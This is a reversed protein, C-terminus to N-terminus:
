RAIAQAWKTKQYEENLYPFREQNIYTTLGSYNNIRFGSYSLLFTPTNYKVVMCKEILMALEMRALAADTMRAFHQEFDFFLHYSYRDFVQIGAISPYAEEKANERVWAALEPLPSTRILSLTVSSFPLEQEQYNYVAETFAKLNAEPEFLLNISTSYVQFFGPSLIEAPSGLIYEAKDKLEYAVEIGAMFCAEFLIFEFQNDPIANAFDPLNMWVNNDVVISRPSNLTADPLWGSAHSFVILGYSEAPCEAVAEEIVRKFVEASASNESRGEYLVKSLNENKKRYIVELTAGEPLDQYIVLNGGEGNWGEIIKERKDESKGNLNNDRGLYVLLTRTAKDEKRGEVGEFVCSTFSVSGLLLLIIVSLSKMCVNRNKYIVLSDAIPNMKLM